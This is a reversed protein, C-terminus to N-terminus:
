AVVEKPSIRKPIGPARRALDKVDRVPTANELAEAPRTVPHENVTEGSVARESATSVPEPQRPAPAAPVTETQQRPAASRTPARQPRSRVEIQPLDVTQAQLSAPASLATMLAVGCAVLRLQM